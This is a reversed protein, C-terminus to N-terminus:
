EVVMVVVLVVLIFILCFHSVYRSGVHGKGLGWVDGSM